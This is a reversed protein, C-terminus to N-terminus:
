EESDSSENTGEKTLILTIIDSLVINKRIYIGGFIDPLPTARHGKRAPESFVYHNWAYGEYGADLDANIETTTGIPREKKKRM